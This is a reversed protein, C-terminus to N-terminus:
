QSAVRFGIHKDGYTPPDEYHRYASRAVFENSGWWGGKEVKTTGSAPGTPDTAPSAKYYDVALWDSVWEMANGAMDNAGVWSAGTPYSGVPKPAVSNIVNARDTDFTDGWPYVPSEPGRAAYEWEAETPLRGGRWTAYAEAEYWTLCMRPHEAVDGQCHLPLRAADKGSLWAWGDPSWLSQNTYGGADVFAAFARNTVEDRDIWYGKSLTVEHAPQESPFESAVWDPPNAATLAAIAKADTGMTFNGAPVWVQEIGFTDTRTQGATQGDSPVPTSASSPEASSTVPPTASPTSAPTAAPASSPPTGGTCAALLLMTLLIAGFRARGSLRSSHM